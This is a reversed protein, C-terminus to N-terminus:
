IVEELSCGFGGSGAHRMRSLGGKEKAESQAAGSLGTEHHEVGTARGFM